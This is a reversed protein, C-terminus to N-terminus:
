LNVRLGYSHFGRVLSPLEENIIGVAKFWTRSKYILQLTGIKSITKTIVTETCPKEIKTVGPKSTLSINLSNKSSISSQKFPHSIQEPDCKKIVKIVSYKVQINGIEKNSLNDQNQLLEDVAYSETFQIMTGENATMKVSESDAISNDVAKGDIILKPTWNYKSYTNDNRAVIYYEVNASAEM